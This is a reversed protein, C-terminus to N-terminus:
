FLLKNQNKCVCHTHSNRNGKGCYIIRHTIVDMVFEVELCREQQNACDIRRASIIMTGTEMDKICWSQM